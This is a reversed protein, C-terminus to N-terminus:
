QLLPRFEGTWPHWASRCICGAEERIRHQTFDEVARPIYRYIAFVFIALGEETTSNICKSTAVGHCEKRLAGTVSLRTYHLHFFASCPCCKFVNFPCTFVRLACGLIGKRDHGAGNNVGVLRLVPTIYTGNAYETRCLTEIGHHIDCTIM